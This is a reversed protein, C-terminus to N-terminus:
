QKQRPLDILVVDSNQRLRDFVIHAGGPTIDFTLMTAPNDLHALQRTKMTTLDLLWFDQPRFREQCYDGKWSV